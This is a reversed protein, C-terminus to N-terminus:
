NAYQYMKVARYTPTDSDVRVSIRGLDVSSKSLKCAAEKLSSTSLLLGPCGIVSVSNGPTFSQLGLSQRRIASAAVATAWM